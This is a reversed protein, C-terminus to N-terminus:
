DGCALTVRNVQRAVLRMAFCVKGGESHQLRFEGAHGVLAGHLLEIRESMLQGRRRRVLEVQSVHTRHQLRKTMRLPAEGAHENCPRIAFARGRRRQRGDQAHRPVLRREIARRMQHADVLPQPYVTFGDAVCFEAGHVVPNLASCLFQQVRALQRPMGAEELHQGRHGELIEGAHPNLDRHEFDAHASAQVRGIHDLRHDRHNGIDREVMLFIKAVGDGFNRALFCADDPRVSNHHRQRLMRLRVVHDPM